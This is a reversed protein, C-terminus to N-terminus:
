IKRTKKPILYTVAATLCEPISDEEVLKKLTEATHKHTATLHKLWFSPIQDRGPAKWNLATRQAEAVDKECMPSWEM